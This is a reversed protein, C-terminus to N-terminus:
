SNILRLLLPQNHHLSYHGSDPSYSRHEKSDNQKSIVAIVPHDLLKIVTLVLLIRQAEQAEKLRLNIVIVASVNEIRQTLIVKGPCLVLLCELAIKMIMLVATKSNVIRERQYLSDIGSVYIILVEILDESDKILGTIDEALVATSGPRIVATM